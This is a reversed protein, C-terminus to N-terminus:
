HSTCLVREYVEAVGQACADWSFREAVWAPGEERTRRDALAATVAAAAATPDHPAFPHPLDGGVERLVAIDSCALPVGRGLAELVPVGFGEALSPVAACAALAWLGELVDDPQYGAFRVRAAVGLELALRRLEDLYREEPGCLVLVVDEPLLALARVLVEQNKHRRFAAVSMVIREASSLGLRVRVAGAPAPQAHPPRGPGNHITHVREPDVGLTAVVDEGTADSIAVVAAAHRASRTVVRKLVAESSRRLTHIRFPILDHITLVHPVRTAGPGTNALSHLVDAGLQEGIRPFRVLEAVMRRAREGEDVAVAHVDSWGDAVLGAVGRRTTVVTFRTDPLRRKLAPVLARLYTETGASRGPDLWLANLAVHRPATVARAAGSRRAIV